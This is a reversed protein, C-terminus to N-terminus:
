AVAPGASPRAEAPLDYGSLAGDVLSAANGWDFNRFAAARQFVTAGAYFMEYQVHRSAFESGVADWALKLTKVRGYADTVSSRQTRGILGRIEENDFDASSSPLMIMGGGALERISTIFQPYLEQALCTAAHMMMRNPAFYPGVQEGAVEMAQVLSEVMTVSAAMRGLQDRVQPIDIVGNIEAIRRALGLLFQLKVSLRIQSHHNQMPAAWTDRFQSAALGIDRHVFVRDWPVKVQDFVVVADNEDFRCSLPNDFESLASQEYSKRSLIKVGPTGLPIAFSTAFAEEGPRLPTINAVFVENAMVAATGLMKAGHVTIGGGDEDVIRAGPHQEFGQEGPGKAQNSQPNIITYTVYLDQDRAHEFWGQLASAREPASRRFRELDMLMGCVSTPIHDPSRGFFGYSARSWLTMARRREVLDQHSRPIQWHRGVPKGSTPSVFTMTEPHDSQLDYLHAITGIANRFAPHEVPNQVREGDLLVVRGDALSKLHKSGTKSM